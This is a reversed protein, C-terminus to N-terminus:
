AKPQHRSARDSALSDLLWLRLACYRDEVGDEQFIRLMEERPLCKERPDLGLYRGLRSLRWPEIGLADAAERLNLAENTARM